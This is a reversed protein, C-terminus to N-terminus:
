DNLISRLNNLSKENIKDVTLKLNKQLNEYKKESMDLAETMKEFFNVNNDSYIISNKDNFEYADAFTKEIICPKLFGYILQFIGSVGKTLYREHEKKQSDLMTLIFDAESLKQFLVLFDVKSMIEFYPKIEDPLSGFEERAIVTIKFNRRGIKHLTEVASILSNLNKLEPSLRGVSIFKVIDRNIEKEPEYGFYNPNVAINELEPNKAPNGLIIQVDNPYKCLYELHHQIYINKKKGTQLKKYYNQVDTLGKECYIKQSNYIIREYKSFDYQEYIEDFTNRNCEFIQVNELKLNDFIKDADYRTLIDVNYGLDVLYKCYGLITEIHCGNIEVILITKPAIEHTIFREYLKKDLKLRIKIKIGCIDFITHEKYRTVKFM